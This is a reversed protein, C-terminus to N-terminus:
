EYDIEGDLRFRKERSIEFARDAEDQEATTYEWHQPLPEPHESM